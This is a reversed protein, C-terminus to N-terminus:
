EGGLAYRSFHTTKGEVYKETKNVINGTMEWLQNNADYYWIRLDDENIGGLLADKYSLRIVVTDSFIARHPGFEATFTQSDWLFNVNLDQNLDGPDFSISSIGTVDDGIQITGGVAATIQQSINFTKKMRFTKAKLFSIQDSTRKNMNSVQELEELNFSLPSMKNSCGSFNFTFGIIFVMIVAVATIRKKTKM